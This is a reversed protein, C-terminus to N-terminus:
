RTPTGVGSIIKGMNTLASNGPDFYSSHAGRNWWFGTADSHFQQGYGPTSWPQPGRVFNPVFKVPDHANTTVWVHQANDQPRVGTLHLDTPKDVDIGPSGVLVIKDADLTHSGSAAHGIATAGYSHGIVTNSSRDGEHTVRLGSQFGDLPAAATDAYGGHVFDSLKPPSDYGYWAIASTQKSPDALEAARREREAREVGDGIKSLDAEVGPVHTVVNGATDPNRIAIAAHGRGDLLSLLRPPEGPRTQLGKAVADYGALEHRAAEVQKQWADLQTKDTPKHALLEDLRRQTDARLDVLTRRNYHDRDAQPIGNRNGLFPDRAYLADKEAPTLKEWLDHLQKPDTPLQAKGDLIAQVQPSIPPGDPHKEYQGLQGIATTIAQAATTETTGFQTLLKKLRSQLSTAQGDLNRQMISALAPDIAGAVAPVRPATVNGANDVTMGAKPIEHDVLTLLASRTASLQPGYSNYRDVISLVGTSLHNGSLRESVARTSAASAGTGKWGDMARDVDRAMQEVRGTFTDNQTTLDAAFDIMSQPDCGRVHSITTM